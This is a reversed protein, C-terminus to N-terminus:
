SAYFRRSVLGSLPWCALLVLAAIRGSDWPDALLCAAAQLPLLLRIHAGILPPLPTAPRRFLKQALWVAWGLIFAYLLAVPERAPSQLAFGAGSAAIILIVLVPLLRALVPPRPRMEHRALNTIAAIYLAFLLAIPLALLLFPLPGATAGLMVSLGRCAGMNLAGIVPWRKTLLNYLAVTAFLGAAVLFGSTGGAILALAVGAAALMLMVAVVLKRPAAGSPLPRSPRERRDEAEDAWDNQLLGAGYLCLSALMAPVLSADLAGSNAILYGALADGPVTFLNPARLLQLWTRLAAM